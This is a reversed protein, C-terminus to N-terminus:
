HLDRTWEPIRCYFRQIPTILALKPNSLDVDDSM